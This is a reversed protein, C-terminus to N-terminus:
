AANSATGPGSSQGSWRDRSSTLGEVFEGERRAGAIRFEEFLQAVKVSLLRFYPVQRVIAVIVTTEGDGGCTV